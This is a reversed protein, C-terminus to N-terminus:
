NNKTRRDTKESLLRRYRFEDLELLPFYEYMLKKYEPYVVFSNRYKYFSVADLTAPSVKYVPHLRIGSERIANIIQKKTMLGLPYIHDGQVLGKRHFLTARIFSEYKSRGSCILECGYKKKNEEIVKEQDFWDYDWNNFETIVNIPSQFIGMAVTSVFWSSPSFVFQVKPFRQKLYDLYRKDEPHGVIPAMYLSVIEKIEAYDHLWSLALVSDKGLSSLHLIKKHQVFEALQKHSHIIINTTDM